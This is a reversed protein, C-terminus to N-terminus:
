LREDLHYWRGMGGGLRRRPQDPASWSRPSDEIVGSVQLAEGTGGCWRDVFVLACDNMRQREPLVKRRSAVTDAVARVQNGM